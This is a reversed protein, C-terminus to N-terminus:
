GAAAGAEIKSIDLVDNILALLHHASTQVMASSSPRSTTSRASSARSCSGTFGLISNLPTRLEHSMTALFASKLRDAAEAREKAVELEHAARKRETIDVSTGVIGVPAGDVRVPAVNVQYTRVEGRPGPLDYEMQLSEGALVRHLEALWRERLPSPIDAEDARIGVLDGITAKSTPSQMTYRLDSDIAFFEVPMNDIITRLYAESRRLAEEAVRRKTIDMSTGILAEVEGGVRVPATNSLYTRTEGARTVIDYEAQITEGALARRNEEGVEGSLDRCTWKM